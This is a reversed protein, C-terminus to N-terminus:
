KQKEQRYAHYGGLLGTSLGALGLGLKRNRLLNKKNKTLVDALAFGSSSGGIAYLGTNLGVNVKDVSSKYKPRNSGGKEEVTPKDAELNYKKYNAINDEILSFKRYILKKDGITIKRNVKNGFYEPSSKRDIRGNKIAGQRIPKNVLGNSTNKTTKVKFNM